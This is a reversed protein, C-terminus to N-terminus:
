GADHWNERQSRTAGAGAQSLGGPIIEFRRRWQQPPSVAGNVRKQGTVLNVGAIWDLGPSLAERGRDNDPHRRLWWRRLPPPLVAIGEPRRPVMGLLMMWDAVRRASLYRGSWPPTANRSSLGRRLGWLSYPNFGIILLHGEPALVRGAERIVQHPARSFELQHVLVVVDVSGSALPIVRSDAELDIPGDPWDDAVWQRVNGFLAPSHGNGYAGIQLVRRAYLGALRRTLLRTEREALDQGAPTAFWEHLARM